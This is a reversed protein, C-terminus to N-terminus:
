KLKLSFPYRAIEAGQPTRLILTWAGAQNLDSHPIVVLLPSGAPPTVASGKVRAASNAPAIEYVLPTGPDAANVDLSLVSYPQKDGLEITQEDGRAAARLVIPALARSTRLSPITVLAQYGAFSGVLLLTAAAPVLSAPALWELWRPRLSKQPTERSRSVSAEDQAYVERIGRALAAGARVDQACEACDFYHAEFDFREPENMEGLLYRSSADTALAERHDMIM